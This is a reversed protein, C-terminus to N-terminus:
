VEDGNPKHFYNRQNIGTHHCGHRFSLTFYGLINGADPHDKKLLALFAVAYLAYFLHVYLYSPLYLWWFVLGVLNFIISIASIKAMDIVKSSIRLRSLMIIVALDSLAGLPFYLSGDLDGCTVDFMIVCFVYVFSPVSPRFLAALVLAAYLYNIVM